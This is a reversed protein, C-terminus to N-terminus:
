QGACWAKWMERYAGEMKRAFGKADMLPSGELGGRLTRRLEALKGLDGALTAAKHAFEEDSWSILEPM